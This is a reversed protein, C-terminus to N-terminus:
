LERHLPPASEYWRPVFGALWPRRMFQDEQSIRAFVCTVRRFLSAASINGTICSWGLEDSQSCKATLPAVVLMATCIHLSVAKM